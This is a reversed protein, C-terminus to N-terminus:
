WSGLKKVMKAIALCATLGPSEIGVLNIFGEVGNSTEHRIVFDKVGEGPGQLKPRMGATDPTLDDFEIFPLFTKVSEYFDKQKAPSVTYFIEDVYTTDPGLRM